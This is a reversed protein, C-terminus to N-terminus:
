KINLYNAISDVLNVEVVDTNGTIADAMSRKSEIIDYIHEDITNQGLFFFSTVSKTQGIRNLRDEAQDCDAAHWPLEIFGVTSSAFQLGDVGTGAAKISCIILNTKSNDKFKVINNQRDILSDDGMISVANAYHAKILAAVEKLHVFLVVKEGQEIINDIFETVDKVKGRASINKLIGIRVMIEGRLASQIKEDSADKFKVLYTILNKEAEKYEAQTTIDCSVVQRTKPPLEKAVEQKSRRYFCNKNLLFNLEKLNSAEKPGSCFHKIFHSYGGFKDMQDIIGLQSILDKPKNIVPTGTLGLIWKKGSAIGKTFKAQQTKSDKVKHIEDIIISNFMRIRENFHIHNLRLQKSEGKDISQVFYKKLSEYNVIFVQFMNSEYYLHFNRKVSDSLIMSMNRGTWMKFQNVWNYKVSSPCIVLVPFVPNLGTQKYKLDAGILTAIAQGTKGLGMDDGIIVRQHELNYAVGGRQYERLTMQLPIDMMLEPLPDISYDKEPVNSVKGWAFHHRHAFREVELRYKSPIIWAKNKADFRREPLEKVKEILYPHYKFEIKFSNPTVTIQM